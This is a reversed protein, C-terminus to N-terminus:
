LLETFLYQYECGNYLRPCQPELITLLKATVWLQSNYASLGVFDMSKRPSWQGLILRSYGKGELNITKVCNIKRKEKFLLLVHKVLLLVLGLSLLRIKKKSVHYQWRTPLYNIAAPSM